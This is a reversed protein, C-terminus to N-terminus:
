LVPRVAITARASERAAPAGGGPTATSRAGYGCTALHHAAAAFDAAHHLIAYAAFKSYSCEPKFPTSSTFVYLRDSGALNTTASVGRTKGPRCWYAVDGRNYVHRWGAPELTEPWSARRNFDDGPRDGSRHA